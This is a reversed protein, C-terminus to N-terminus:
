MSSPVMTDNLIVIYPIRAVLVHWFHGMNQRNDSLIVVIPPSM